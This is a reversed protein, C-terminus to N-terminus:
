QSSVKNYADVLYQVRDMRSPAVESLQHFKDSLVYEAKTDEFDIEEEGLMHIIAQAVCGYIEFYPNNDFGADQMAKDMKKAMLGADVLNLFVSDMKM